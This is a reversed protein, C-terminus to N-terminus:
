SRRKASSPTVLFAFDATYPYVASVEKIPTSVPEFFSGRLRAGWFRESHTSSEVYLGKRSVVAATAEGLANKKPTVSPNGRWFCVARKRTPCLELVPLVHHFRIYRPVFHAPWQPPSFQQRQPLSLLRNRFVDPFVELGPQLQSFVRPFPARRTSNSRRALFAHGEHELTNAHCAGPATAHRVLTPSTPVARPTASKAPM